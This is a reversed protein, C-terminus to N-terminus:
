EELQREGGGGVGAREVENELIKLKSHAHQRKPSNSRPPATVFWVM